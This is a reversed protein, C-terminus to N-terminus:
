EKDEEEDSLLEDLNKEDTLEAYFEYGYDNDNLSYILYIYLGPKIDIITEDGEPNTDYLAPMSFGNRLLVRRIKQIGVEPSLILGSLEAILEDNISDYIEDATVPFNTVAEPEEILFQKFRM